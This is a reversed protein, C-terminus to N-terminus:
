LKDLSSVSKFTSYKCACFFLLVWFAWTGFDLQTLTVNNQKIYLSDQTNAALLSLSLYTTKHSFPIFTKNDATRQIINKSPCESVIVWVVSFAQAGVNTNYQMFEVRVESISTLNGSTLRALIKVADYKRDHKCDPVICTFHFLSLTETGVRLQLKFVNVDM